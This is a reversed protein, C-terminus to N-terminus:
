EIWYHVKVENEGIATELKEWKSNDYKFVAELFLSVWSNIM